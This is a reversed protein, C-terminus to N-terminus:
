ARYMRLASASPDSLRLEDLWASCTALKQAPSLSPFRPMILQYGQYARPLDQFVVPTEKGDAGLTDAQWVIQQETRLSSFLRFGTFPWLELGVLACFVFVGLYSRVFWLARRPIPDADTM